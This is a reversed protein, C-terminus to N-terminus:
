SIRPNLTWQISWDLPGEEGKEAGLCVLGSNQFQYVKINENGTTLYSVLKQMFPMHGVILCDSLSKIRWSFSTVDDLPNIGEVHELPTTVQLAAHYIEATQQARKKGSHVIKEVVVNYGKAVEAIRRTQERGENTLVKEGDGEVACIGHQVLYIQM